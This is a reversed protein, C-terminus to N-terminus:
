GALVARGTLFPCTCPRGARSGWKLCRTASLGSLRTSPTVARPYLCISVWRIKAQFISSRSSIASSSRRRIAPATGTRFFAGAPPLGRERQEEEELELDSQLERKLDADRKRMQWWRM